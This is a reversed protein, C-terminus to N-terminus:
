KKFEKTLRGKWNKGIYQESALHVCAIEPLFRRKSKEFLKSHLVDAGDFSINDGLHLRKQSYNIVGSEKPNWLQFFGIPFYENNMILRQGIPFETLNLPLENAIGNENSIFEDWHEHSNCMLRDIGYICDGSLEISDLIRKNCIPMWIDADLNVVWGNKQLSDLGVNIGSAINKEKDFVDTKILKVNNEYCVQETGKDTTNSVVVVNDFVKKTNPLTVKLFDSYDICVIVAEILNNKIGVEAM